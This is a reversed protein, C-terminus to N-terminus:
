AAILTSYLVIERQDVLRNNHWLLTFEGDYYRCVDKLAKFRDLAATTAGLNQYSADM